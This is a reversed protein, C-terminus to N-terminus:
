YGSVPVGSPYARNAQRDLNFTATFLGATLPGTAVTYRVGMYRSLNAVPVCIRLVETGATLAAKGIVASAVVDVATGLNAATDTILSFTVTAAGAATVDQTCIIVVELDDGAGIDRAVGLDYADTSVATATVAQNISVTAQRDMIM